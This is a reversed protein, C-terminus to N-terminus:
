TICSTIVGELDDFNQLLCSTTPDGDDMYSCVLTQISYVANQAEQSDCGRLFDLMVKACKEQCLQSGTYFSKHVCSQTTEICYNKRVVEIQTATLETGSVLFNLIPNYCDPDAGAGNRLFAFRGADSNCDFEQSLVGHEISLLVVVFVLGRQMSKQIIKIKLRAFPDAEVKTM